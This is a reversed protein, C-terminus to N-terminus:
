SMLNLLPIATRHFMSPCAAMAPISANIRTDTGTTGSLILSMQGSLNRMVSINMTKREMTKFM